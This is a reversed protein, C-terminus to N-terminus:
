ARALMAQWVSAASHELAELSGTNDIIYDSRARKTASPLQSAMLRSIQDDDLARTALLRSRRISEPADVLVVADFEAPDAAEFLLPIDSVVIRDGRRVAAELLEQRRRHVLPHMIRNLAELETPQALVRARLRSRDLTGNPHLVDEGFQAAIAALAPHGPVQAERVLQDADIITAGWRRFLDVVTSKGAGINGTLAVSLM